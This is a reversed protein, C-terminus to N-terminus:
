YFAVPHAYHVYWRTPMAMSHLAVAVYNGSNVYSDATRLAEGLDSFRQPHWQGFLKGRNPVKYIGVVCIPDSVQAAPGALLCEPSAYPPWMPLVEMGWTIPIHAGMCCDPNMAILSQSITM